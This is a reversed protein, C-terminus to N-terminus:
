CVYDIIYDGSIDMFQLLTAEFEYVVGDIIVILWAHGVLSGDEDVRHGYLMQTYLGQHDFYTRSAAAMEVCDWHAYHEAEWSDFQDQLLHEYYHIDSTQASAPLAILFFMFIAFLTINECHLYFSLKRKKGRNVMKEM